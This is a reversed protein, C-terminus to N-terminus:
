LLWQLVLLFHTTWFFAVLIKPGTNWQRSRTQAIAPIRGISSSVCASGILTSSSGTIRHMYLKFAVQLTIMIRVRAVKIILSLRNQLLTHIALSCRPPSQSKLIQRRRRRSVQCSQSYGLPKTRKWFGLTTASPSIPGARSNHMHGNEAGAAHIEFQRAARLSLLKSTMSARALPMPAITLIARCSQVRTGGTM